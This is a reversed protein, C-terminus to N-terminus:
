NIYQVFLFFFALLTMKFLSNTLIENFPRIEKSLEEPLHERYAELIRSEGITKFYTGIYLMPTMWMFCTGFPNMPFAMVVSFNLVINWEFNFKQFQLFYEPLWEMYVLVTCIM